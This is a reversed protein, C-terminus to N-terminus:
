AELGALFQVYLERGYHKGFAFFRHLTAAAFVVAFAAFLLFWHWGGSLAMVLYVVALVIFAITLGIMMGMTRNFADIRANHGAANVNAYIRRTVAQWKEANGDYASLDLDPSALLTQLAQTLENRQDGDLLQHIDNKKLVWETPQGGRLHWLGKEAFDGVARLVQGAVYAAILFMGLAGISLDKSLSWPFPNAFAIVLGALLTAGPIIVAVYEYADFSKTIAGLQDSADAV